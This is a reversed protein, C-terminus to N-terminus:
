ERAGRGFADCGLPSLEAFSMASEGDLSNLSQQAEAIGKADDRCVQTIGLMWWSDPDGPAISLARRYAVVASDFRGSHAYAEGLLRWLEPSEPRRELERLLVEPRGELAAHLLSDQRGIQRSVQLSATIAVVSVVGLSGLIWKRVRAM